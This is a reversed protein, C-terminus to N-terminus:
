AKVKQYVKEEVKIGAQGMFRFAMDNWQDREHVGKIEFTEVAEKPIIVEVDINLEDLLKKLPISLDMVCIDTCCGVVRIKRFKPNKIVAKIFDIFGPAWIASTSNKLFTYCYPELDALEDVLMAEKTGKICHSPHINFESAHEDHNEKIVVVAANESNLDEEMYNRIAPVIHMIYPDAMIGEKAFGNVMDVVITLQEIDRIEVKKM